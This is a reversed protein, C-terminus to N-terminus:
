GRPVLGIMAVDNLRSGQRALSAMWIMERGAIAQRELVETVTLSGVHGLRDRVQFWLGIMGAVDRMRDGLRVTPYELWRERGSVLDLGM